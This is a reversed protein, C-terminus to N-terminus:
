SAIQDPRWTGKYKTMYENSLVLNDRGLHKVPEGANVDSLEPFLVPAGGAVQLYKETWWREAEVAESKLAINPFGTEILAWREYVGLYCGFPVPDDLLAVSHEFDSLIDYLGPTLVVSDQIFLFRRLNTNEVVWRLKGIEYGPVSVVIAEGPVSALAQAAWESRGQSTGIVTTLM